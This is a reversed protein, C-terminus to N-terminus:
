YLVTLVLEKEKSLIHIASLLDVRILLDKNISRIVDFFIISQLFKQVAISNLIRLFSEADVKVFGMLSTIDLSKM